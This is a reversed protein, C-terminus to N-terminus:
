SILERVPAYRNSLHLSKLPTYVDIIDLDHINKFLTNLISTNLGSYYIVNEMGEFKSSGAMEESKVDWVVVVGEWGFWQRMSQQFSAMSQAASYHSNMDGDSLVVWVPYKNIMEIKLSKLAEDEDVWDKLGEAVKNFHTGHRSIIYQGINNYNWSFPKTSDVLQRVLTTKNSMFRNAGSIKVQQQETIVEAVDDFRIFMKQLEEDPNKLLFLTTLLQAMRQASFRIGKHQVTVSSMSGSIDAIVMVPVELNMKNLLSDAILDVEKTNSLSKFFNAVVDLLTEAGTNVKAAKEIKKLEKPDEKALKEKDEKTLNRLNQQAVEKQLLWEQFIDGIYKIGAVNSTWKPNSTLKNSKPDKNLLRVQTRYRAGSPLQNFWELLQTKDLDKIKQSSFMTAESDALYQKKFAKYGVYELNNKHNVIEWGMKTSLMHINNLTWTDKGQTESKKARKGRVVDGVKYDAGYKRRVSKLGIETVVFKKQRTKTPIHWLWKAWLKKENETTHPNKLVSAIYDTVINMDVNLKLIEKVNGKYRDTKIEYFMMGDLNYYEGIIPLLTYFQNPITRLVWDLGYLFTKRASAGGGDVNKIGKKRFINHERNQIDGISFLITFFLERKIKSGKCETWAANLYSSVNASNVNDGLKPLQQGMNLTAKMGYFPNEAVAKQQATKIM